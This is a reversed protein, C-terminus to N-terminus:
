LRLLVLLAEHAQSAEGAHASAIARLALLPSAARSAKYHPLTVTFILGPLERHRWPPTWQSQERGLGAVLEGVVADHPSLAALVDRASVGSAQPTPLSGDQRLWDAWATLDTPKTFYGAAPLKPGTAGGRPLSLSELRKRNGEAQAAEPGHDLALNKLLPIACFNQEDPVAEPAIKRFEVTEGARALKEQAARWRHAGLWNVWQCLLVCLTFLLLVAWAVVRLWRSRWLSTLLSIM